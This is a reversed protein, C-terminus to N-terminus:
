GNIFENWSLDSWGGVPTYPKHPRYPTYPTYPTYPQYPAYTNEVPTDPNWYITKGSTDRINSGYIHGVWSKKSVNWVSMDRCIFAVWNMDTDFVNNKEDSLWGVLNTDKDFIAIM